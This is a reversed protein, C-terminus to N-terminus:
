PEEPGGDSPKKAGSKLISLALELAQITANADARNIQISISAGEAEHHFHDPLDELDERMGVVQFTRIPYRFGKVTISKQEEAILWNKVLSYTEAALLIGGPRASAELRSALNVEHGIITYDMRDQSGFNGVTCYGTNIGMRAQFPRDVLGNQRWASQLDYLRERMELAMKVCAEADEKLGRSIPDGFFCMIADGIFKDFTAGHKVAIATMEGLYENLLATLEEAQLQDTIESFGAIDSFFITLKKRKSDIAADHVGGIILDYLQPPVYKALQISVNELVLNTQRLENVMRTNEIAIVAQAAFTRLLAMQQSSLVGTSLRVVSIVGIAKGDKLMPMMAVARYGSKLFNRAGASNKGPSAAVDGINIEKSDLLARGHMYERSKPFPFRKRWAEARVRDEDAVAVADIIDGFPMAVSIASGPFLRSGSHVIAEFVPQTDSPSSSILGLIENTAQQRDLAERLEERLRGDSYNEKVRPGIRDPKQTTAPLKM